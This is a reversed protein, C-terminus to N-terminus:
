SKTPEPNSVTIFGHAFDWNRDLNAFGKPLKAQEYCATHEAVTMGKPGRVYFAIRELSKGRKPKATHAAENFVIRSEPTVTIGGVKLSTRWAASRKAKETKEVKPKETTAPAQSLDPLVKASKTAPKAVTASKAMIFDGITPLANVPITLAVSTCYGLELNPVLALKANMIHPDQM